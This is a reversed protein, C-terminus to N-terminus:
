CGSDHWRQVARLTATANMEGCDVAAYPRGADTYVLFSETSRIPGHGLNSLARNYSRASIYSLGNASTKVLVKVSKGTYRNTLTAYSM